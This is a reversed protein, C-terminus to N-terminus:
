RGGDFILYSSDVLFTDNGDQVLNWLHGESRDQESIMYGGAKMTHINPIQRKLNERESEVWMGEMTSVTINAQQMLLNFFVSRQFCTNADEQISRELTYNVDEGAAVIEDWRAEGPKLNNMTMLAGKQIVTKREVISAQERIW